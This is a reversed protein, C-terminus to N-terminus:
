SKVESPSQTTIRFAHIENPILDSVLDLVMRHRNIRSQNEFMASVLTLHFYSAGTNSAHGVHGRSEDELDILLPELAKMRELVLEARQTSTM